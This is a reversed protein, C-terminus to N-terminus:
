GRLVSRVAFTRLPDFAAMPPLGFPPGALCRVTPFSGEKGIINTMRGARPDRVFLGELPTAPHAEDPKMSHYDSDLWITADALDATSSGRLSDVKTPFRYGARVM